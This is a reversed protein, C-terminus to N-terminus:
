DAHLKLLDDVYYTKDGYKFTKREPTQTNQETM